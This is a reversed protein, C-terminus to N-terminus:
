YTNYVQIYKDEGNIRIKITGDASQTGDEFIVKGGETDLIGGSEAVTDLMIYPTTGDGAKDGNSEMIIYNYQDPMGDNLNVDTHSEELIRSPTYADGDMTELVILDGADTAPSGDTSNLIVADREATIIAADDYFSLDAATGYTADGTKGEPFIDFLYKTEISTTGGVYLEGFSIFATPQGTRTAVTDDHDIVLGYAGSLTTGTNNATVTNALDLVAHIPTNLRTVESGTSNKSIARIAVCDRVTYGNTDGITSLAAGITDYAGSDYKNYIDVTIGTRSTSGSTRADSMTIFSNGFEMQDDTMDWLMNSSATAGYFTVDHGADDVGVTINGGFVSTVNAYMTDADEDIWWRKNATATYFIVDYGTNDAGITVTGNASIAPTHITVATTAIVNTTPATIELITDAAIDLTGDTASQISLGTDHFYMKNTTNMLISISNQTYATTTINNSYVNSWFFEDTGIDYAVNSVPTLDSGIDATFTVKDSAADGFTLNGSITTDGHVTLNEGITVSKAIGVGGSVILAGSTNSTSNTTDAIKADVPISGFLDDITLKKSTTASTDVIAFVDDSAVDTASLATLESFKVDAM